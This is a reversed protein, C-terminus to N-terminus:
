LLSFLKGVTRNVSGDKVPSLLVVDVSNRMLCRSRHNLKEKLDRIESRLHRNENIPELIDNNTETKFESLYCSRLIEDRTRKNEEPRRDLKAIIYDIKTEILRHRVQYLQGTLKSGRSSPAGEQRNRYPTRAWRKSM